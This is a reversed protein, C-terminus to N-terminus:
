RSSFVSESNQAWQRCVPFQTVFLHIFCFICISYVCETYIRSSYLGLLARLDKPLLRSTFAPPLVHCRSAAKLQSAACLHVVKRILCGEAWAFCKSRGRHQFHAIHICESLIFLKPVFLTVLRARLSACCCAWLTLTWCTYHKGHDDSDKPNMVIKVLGNIHLYCQAM